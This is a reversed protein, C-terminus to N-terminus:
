DEEESESQEEDSDVIRVGEFGYDRVPDKTTELDPPSLQDIKKLGEMSVDIVAQIGDPLEIRKRPFYPVVRFAAVKQQWVAGNMEAIIYSGGPRRQVVIMPGLYRPKMKTNLADEVQTNRVLVLDGPNFTYDKIVAKNDKEYKRLIKLKGLDVRKRMASIHTSHKALARARSGILEEDTIADSPPKILWTAEAVDLPLTPHAGTVMFYPSCGKGKRISTRDAWLVAHLFWYWKDVNHKGTAKYLMQRIDWHPAEIKGNAKSNYPSITIAPINYKDTLWAAAAVFATGNDTVIEVLSGWRCLIDEYIWQAISRADQKRLARAEAWLTLSDRGHVIYGCQNSAPTMHMVDAHLVQFVSPTHTIKPPIILLTRQREQCAQCSKIFWKVDADMEPWWFRQALLARTAFLGRHGSHDHAAKLMYMRNEKAVYLRHVADKSRRYIRGNYFTFRGRLREVRTLLSPDSGRMKYDKDKFKQVIHYMLEDQLIAGKSRHEESYDSGIEKESSDPLVLASTLQAIEQGEQKGKLERDLFSKEIERQNRAQSLEQAFDKEDSAIGNYFGGRSDIEDVFEKVDLPQPESPDAIILGPPGEMMYDEEEGKDIDPDGVQKPRRSLGDPGFTAGAKHRLTFHFMLVQDIWRNITANPMLDPNEIMGKIYKADTEVILNRCGFLWRREVHLATKLGFFERKPQSFRSQRDDLTISGFKAYTRKKPDDPDEQYIYYGIGIYSTDVALVIPGGSEPDLPKLPQALRVGEKLLEMSDEQEKGWVFTVNKRTLKQLGHARIGYNPIYARLVGTTGLFSRVESLNDCKEWRLIAGIKDTSPQRGTPTCLHGVVEFEEACLISKTGSFTGGCYSIRQIIRNVNILHEWVFRRIGKNGPIMEETGDELLYRHKPGRVAVDDIYPKTFEPIEAQLIYTVDEHFIPVSNTWGMPLTTLRMAGFPTQFTTLDRSRVDLTREDYGVFLDFVGGCARGSFHAALDETAPPIGSHAITVANLPELSQVIRLSKGDKKLVTFWRSRYSSNSPEFVGADIKKQVLRCVEEHIAPPIPINRLVWPTHEVTPILIPPFFDERFAGRESDTWAFAKNHVSIIHHVLKREEPLLFDGKHVKDMAEMREQTYRGCPKFDSPNVPLEPLDALPDGKIERIIRFEEPLEAYVPKVKLAVPKYKKHLNTSRLDSSASAESKAYEGQFYTQLSSRDEEEMEVENMAKALYVKRLGEDSFGEPRKTEAYAVIQSRQNQHDIEIEVAVEGQDAM